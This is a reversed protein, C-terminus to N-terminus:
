RKSVRLLTKLDAFSLMEAIIEFIEPIKALSELLSNGIQAKTAVVKEANGANASNLSSKSPVNEKDGDGAPQNKVM